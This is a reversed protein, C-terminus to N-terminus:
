GFESIGVKVQCLLLRQPAAARVEAGPIEHVRLPLTLGAWLPERSLEPKTSASKQSFRGLDGLLKQKQRIFPRRQTHDLGPKRPWALIPPVQWDHFPFDETRYPEDDRHHTGRRARRTQRTTLHGTAVQRRIPM